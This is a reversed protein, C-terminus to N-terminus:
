LYNCPIFDCLMFIFVSPFFICKQCTGHIDFSYKQCYDSTFIDLASISIPAKSLAVMLILTRDTMTYFFKKYFFTTNIWQYCILHIRSINM